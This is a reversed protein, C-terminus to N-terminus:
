LREAALDALRSREGKTFFVQGFLDTGAFADVAVNLGCTLASAYPTDIQGDDGTMVLKSGEGMRSVVTKV